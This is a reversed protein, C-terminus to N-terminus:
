LGAYTVKGRRWTMLVRAQFEWNHFPTNRSRSLMQERDFRYATNLDILCLDASAGVELGDLPLSFFRAPAVTLKELVDLIEMREEQVLIKYCLPLCTELGVIGHMATTFDVKEAATHPAHDTAILDITGDKLGRICAQRDAESRLPPYMRYNADRSRLLEDNLAFHHPCVESTVKLGQAKAERVMEISGATSVHSIHTPINLHKSLLINRAVNIEEAVAPLGKVNLERSLAGENMVGGQTLTKDECHDSVVRGHRWAEEMAQRMLGATRVPLGDDTVHGAGAAFLEALPAIEEGSEGLSAAAYPIVQCYGAEEAKEIQYRVLEPSDTVPRTNPMTALVTFGGRAGARTGSIIDEKEPFGPDRLHVHADIFGPSVIYDEAAIVIADPSPTEAIRGNVICLDRRAVERHYPDYVTVGRLCYNSM